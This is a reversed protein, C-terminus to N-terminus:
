GCRFARWCDVDSELVFCTSHIVGLVSRVHRIIKEASDINFCAQTRFAVLLTSIWPRVAQNAQGSVVILPWTMHQPRLVTVAGLYIFLRPWSRRHHKTLSPLFACQGSCSELISLTAAQVRPDYKPADFVDKLLLIRIMELYATCGDKVRPQTQLFLLFAERDVDEMLKAAEQQIVAPDDAKPTPQAARHMLSTTQDLSDTLHLCSPLLSTNSFVSRPSFPSSKEASGSITRSLSLTTRDWAVAKWGSLQFCFVRHPQSSLFFLYFSFGSWWTGRHILQAEKGSVLSGFVEHVALVLCSVWFTLQIIFLTM